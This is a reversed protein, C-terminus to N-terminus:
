FLDLQQAQDFNSYSSTIVKEGVSLGALVEFYDQNKKGLQINRRLAKSNNDTVVYVWHGGSSSFFAGRSLLITNAQQAGLMLEIDVSQGRKFGAIDTPLNIEIEFKAKVVRSDIKSILADVIGSELEVRARMNPQIKPLYFEDLRTVLKYENAIDIQGLRAGRAKSEGIEANIETLYGSVPAKIILNDLNSRAFQLNKELMQASEQLQSIQITRISQEQQQREITLARRSQYYILEDEIEAVQEKALLGTTVLPQSQRFKRQLQALQFDIELLDRRLNLRNTEMNMQTNRLFNLQETVQAERSMVDLQLNINALVLLIQGKRVFEGQEVFRQEVQGGAVSDLYISTRPMVKARAKLADVFVGQKVTNISLSNLAVNQSRSAPVVLGSVNVLAALALLLM